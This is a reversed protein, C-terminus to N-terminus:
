DPTGYRTGDSTGYKTRNSTGDPTGYRARNGTGYRTGNYTGNYTRDYTGDYPASDYHRSATRNRPAAGGEVAGYINYKADRYRKSRAVLRRIDM